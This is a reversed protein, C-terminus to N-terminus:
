RTLRVYVHRRGGAGDLSVKFSGHRFGNSKRRLTEIPVPYERREQKIVAIV